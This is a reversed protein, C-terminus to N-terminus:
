PALRPRPPAPPCLWPRHPHALLWVALKRFHEAAVEGDRVDLDIVVALRLNPDDLLLFRLLTAEICGHPPPRRSGGGELKSGSLCEVIQVNPLPRLLQAVAGSRATEMPAAIRLVWPPPLARAVRAAGRVYRLHLGGGGFLAACLAYSGESGSPPPPLYVPPPQAAIRAIAQAM